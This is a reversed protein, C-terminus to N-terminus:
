SVSLHLDFVPYKQDRAPGRAQAFARRTQQGRLAGPHHDGVHLHVLAFGHRAVDAADEHTAVHGLLGVSLGGHLRRPLLALQDAEDVAGADRRGLLHDALVSRM